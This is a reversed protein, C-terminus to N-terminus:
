GGKKRMENSSNITAHLNRAYDVAGHIDMSPASRLYEKVGEAAPRPANMIAKCLAELRADLEQSPVVDSVIGFSLAREASVSFTSYVMYAAAKRPVRDVFASLVMTPLINHAMEPVQFTAGDSALTIDCLAALACGFGAARGQVVGIIPIAARRFAGYCNFIVETSRRRVLAEVPGSPQTAMGQRGLCFDDGAGRLVVLRFSEGATTLLRALEVAMDDSVLNGCDPRNLTIRLIQGDAEALITNL